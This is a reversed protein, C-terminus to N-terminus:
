SHPSLRKALATGIYAGILFATLAIAFALLGRALALLDFREVPPPNLSRDLLHAARM